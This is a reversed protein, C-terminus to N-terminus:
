VEGRLVEGLQQTVEEIRQDDLHPNLMELQDQDDWKGLPGKSIDLKPTVLWWEQPADGQGRKVTSDYRLQKKRMLILGLVFRFAQRQPQPDDALRRFLSVLVGDDVFLRKKENPQPVVTRWYSFLRPPRQGSDWAQQSVDLRKFGLGVAGKGAAEEAPDFEVLTAMYTEGPQLARGTLACQGTTRQIDYTPANFQTM